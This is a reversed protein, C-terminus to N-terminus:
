NSVRLGVDLVIHPIVFFVDTKSTVFNGNQSTHCMDWMLFVGATLAIM